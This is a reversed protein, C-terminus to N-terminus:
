WSEAFAAHVSHRSGKAERQRPSDFVHSRMLNWGGHDWLKPIGCFREHRLRETEMGEQPDACQAPQQEGTPGHQEHEHILRPDDACGGELRDFIRRVDHPIHDGDTAFTICKAAIPIVDRAHNLPPTPGLIARFHRHETPLAPASYERLAPPL